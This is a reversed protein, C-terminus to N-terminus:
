SRIRWQCVSHTRCRTRSSPTPFVLPSRLIKRVSGCSVLHLSLSSSESLTCTRMYGDLKSTYCSFTKWCIYVCLRDCIFIQTTTTHGPTPTVVSLMQLSETKATPHQTYSSWKIESHQHSFLLNCVIKLVEGLYLVLKKQQTQIQNRWHPIKNRRTINNNSWAAAFPSPTQPVGVQSSLSPFARSRIINHFSDRPKTKVNLPAHIRVHDETGHKSASPPLATNCIIIRQVSNGLLRM